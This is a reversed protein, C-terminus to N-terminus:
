YNLRSKNIKILNDILKNAYTEWTLNKKVTNIANVSMKKLLNHNYFLKKIANEIQKSNKSKVIIGNYNNKIFEAGGSERTCIVPLGCSMAQPIVLPFGDHISPICFVSSQSYYKYLMNQEKHGLYKINKSLFKKVINKMEEQIKGVHWFEIKKIKQLNYIAEILYHSGKQISLGGAYIVIFKKNKKKNKKFEKQNVGYSNIFIKKKLKNNFTNYSFRTPVNIYDTAHYEKLEKSIFFKNPKSIKINLKKEEDDLIKKQYDISASGRELLTICKHQKAKKLSYLSFGSWGIFFNIKNNVFISTLIDFLSCLFFIYYKEIHDPLFKRLRSLVEIFPFTIVQNKSIGFRKLIYYPYTTSIKYLLNRKNLQQALEFAHFKGFVSIFIKM